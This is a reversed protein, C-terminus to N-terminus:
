AEQTLTVVTASDEAIIREEDVAAVIVAVRSEAASILTSCGRQVSRNRAPDLQLGLHGFAGCIRERLADGNEGIGGGFSLVDIGGLEAAYGGVYQVARHVFLDEALRAEPTDTAEIDRMDPSLGSVGVLGSSRNLVDNVEGPTLGDRLLALVAGPDVDGSRTSQVLGELPTFGTSISVSRGRDMANATCGSGLMLSVIRLEDRSRGLVREVEAVISRFAVGHFGYRRIRHERHLRRPLGYLWVEPALTHHLANDFVAVQPLEPMAERAARIGALNPPNHLPALDSCSELAAIVEDTVPVSGTFLEGAHVVRHGVLDIRLGATDLLELVRRIADLHRPCPRTEVVPDGDGARFTLKSEAQGVREVGASALSDGGPMAIVQAKLSSSGCNIVLAHRVDARSM